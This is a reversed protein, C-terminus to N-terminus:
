WVASSQQRELVGRDVILTYIVEFKIVKQELVISFTLCEDLQKQM